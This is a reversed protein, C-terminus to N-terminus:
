STCTALALCIKNRQKFFRSGHKVVTKPRSYSVPGLFEATSQTLSHWKACIKASVVINRYGRRGVMQPIRSLVVRGSQGDTRLMWSIPIRFTLAGHQRVFLIGIIPSRLLLHKKKLSSSRQNKLQLHCNRLCNHRKLRIGCRLGVRVLLSLVMLRSHWVTFTTTPAM